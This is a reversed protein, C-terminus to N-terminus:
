ETHALENEFDGSFEPFSFRLYRLLGKLV